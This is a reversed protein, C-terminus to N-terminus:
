DRPRRPLMFTIRPEDDRSSEQEPGHSSDSTEEVQIEPIESSNEPRKSNANESESEIAVENTSSMDGNQNPVVSGEDEEDIVASNFSNKRRSSPSIGLAALRRRREVATEPEDEDDDDDDNESSSESDEDYTTNNTNISDFVKNLYLESEGGLPMHTEVRTPSDASLEGQEISRKLQEQLHEEDERSIDKLDGVSERDPVLVSEPSHEVDKFSKESSSSDSPGSTQRPTNINLFQPLYHKIHQMFSRHPSSGRRVYKYRRLIDGENNEVVVNDDIQYAYAPQGKKRRSHSRSLRRSRPRQNGLSPRDKFDFKKEPNLSNTSKKDENDTEEPLENAVIELSPTGIIQGGSGIDFTHIVVGNNDEVIIHSGEQYTKIDHPNKGEIKSAPVAADEQIAGADSLETKLRLMVMTETSKRKDGGDITIDPIRQAVQKRLKKEKRKKKKMMKKSLPEETELRRLQLINGADSTRRPLRSLWTPENGGTTYTLTIAMNNIRKGLTFVAISSGHVIISSVVLFCSVPWITSILYYEPHTVPVLDRTPTESHTELEARALLAMFVAGVGIPGFHGCFLAERWTHIDPILPKFALMVPLRRFILLIIALCVLKWASIGISSNNFDPWPVIAGFYVFFATNLLSDIVESVHSEKTEKAFWGDWSFAAGAGFAVLLDDVGCLTGVGGCFLAVCFYYVLFNERDILNHKEAFKILHRACYGIVTGIIIGLVCGYLVGIVIFNLAVKPANKEYDLIDIAMIVFPFAMGDNCGSEASLLNRLHGPVRKAFKGKGVVAAALVPDTATICGSICLAQIWRLTPVLKWIFVSSFLWGYTMVPFLLVTISWWHRLMYKKPLEVAVAFIQVILVVRSIEITIYDTNGWTTPAFWNLCHPGVILGYITAVTAEGIYLKEKLFLSITGFLVLAFGIVAYAVHPKTVEAAVQEWVM